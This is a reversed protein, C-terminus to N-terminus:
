YRLTKPEPSFFLSISIIKTMLNSTSETETEVYKNETNFVVKYFHNYLVYVIFICYIYLKVVCISLFM